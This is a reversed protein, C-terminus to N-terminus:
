FRGQAVSFAADPAVSLGVVMPRVWLGDTVEVFGGLYEYLPRLRGHLVVVPMRGKAYAVARKMLSVPLTTGRYPEAIYLGGIGLAPLTVAPHTLHVHFLRVIGVTEPGDAALIAAQPQVADNWTWHPLRLSPAAFGDDTFTLDIM